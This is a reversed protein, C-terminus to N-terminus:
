TAGQSLDDGFDPLALFGGVGRAAEEADKEGNGLDGLIVIRARPCRERMAKAVAPLNGCSLAAISAHGTTQKASLVTAVGEGIQLTVGEGDGDPLQKQASWFGAA